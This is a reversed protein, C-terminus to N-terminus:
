MANIINMAEQRMEEYARERAATRLADYKRTTLYFEEWSAVSKEGSNGKELAYSFVNVWSLLDDTDLYEFEDENATLIERVRESSFATNGFFKARGIPAASIWSVLWPMGNGAVVVNKPHLDRHVWGRGHVAELVGIVHILERAATVGHESLPRCGLQFVCFPAEGHFSAQMLRPVGPIPPSRDLARLATIENEFLHTAHPGHFVKLTIAHGTTRDVGQFLRSMRSSIWATQTVDLDPIHQFDMLGRHKQVPAPASEKMPQKRDAQATQFSRVVIESKVKITKLQKEVLSEEEKTRALLVELWPIQTSGSESEEIQLEIALRSSQLNDLAKRLDDTQAELDCLVQHIEAVSRHVINSTTPTGTETDSDPPLTISGM